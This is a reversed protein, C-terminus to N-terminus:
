FLKGEVMRYIEDPSKTSVDIILDAYKKTPEVFEEHMPFLVKEYYDQGPAFKNTSRRKISERVPIDLYIKLDMLARVDPDSLALYGDLIVVPKPKITVEIKNKLDHKFGPNYLEGKTFIRVEKGDRLSILDRRIDDFRLSDPHDWNKFGNLEPAEEKKKFYDDVHLLTCEDPHNKCLSVALASKGSGSGGAIGIIKSKNSARDMKLIIDGKEISILTFDPLDIFVM